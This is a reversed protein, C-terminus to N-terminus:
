SPDRLRAHARVGLLVGCWTESALVITFAALYAAAVVLGVHSYLVRLLIGVPYLPMFVTLLSMWLRCRQRRSPGVMLGVTFGWTFQVCLMSWTIVHAVWAPPMHTARIAYWWVACVFLHAWLLRRVLRGQRGM